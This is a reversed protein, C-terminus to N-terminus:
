PRAESIPEPQVGPPLSPEGGLFFQLARLVQGYPHDPQDIGRTMKELAPLLGDVVLEHRATGDGPLALFRLVEVFHDALENGPVHDKGRYIEQLKVLFRARQRGEGCLQYGVYPHCLPQLDFASTYIEQLKELRTARIMQVFPLLELAAEPWDASLLESCNAAAPAPDNEPYDLLRAFLGLIRREKEM